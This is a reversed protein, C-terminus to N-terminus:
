VEWARPLPGLVQATVQQKVLYMDTLLQFQSNLWFELRPVRIHFTVDWTVAGFVDVM